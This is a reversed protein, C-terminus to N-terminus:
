SWGHHLPELLSPSPRVMEMILHGCVSCKDATQQFGSYQSPVSSGSLGTVFPGESGLWCRGGPGLDGCPAPPDGGRSEGVTAPVWSLSVLFDEQCYVKEGVNYFAKGRLRRGALVLISFPTRPGSSGRSAAGTEM